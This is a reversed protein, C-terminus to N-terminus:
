TVNPRLNAIEEMHALIQLRLRAIACLPTMEITVLLNALMAKLSNLSGPVLLPLAILLPTM